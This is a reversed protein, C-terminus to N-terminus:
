KMPPPPKWAALPLRLLLSIAAQTESFKLAM